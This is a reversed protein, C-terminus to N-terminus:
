DGLRVALGQTARLGIPSSPDLVAAQAYVTAGRWALVPPIPLTISSRGILNPVAFYSQVSGLVYLACGGGIPVSGGTDGIVFVVPLRPSDLLELGFSAEPVRPRALTALEPVTAGCGAGVQTVTAPTTTWEATTTGNNRVLRQRVPDFACPTAQDNVAITNLLSWTRARYRWLETSGSPGVGNNGILVLDSSSSDQHLEPSFLALPRVPTVVQQWDTGDWEWTDGLQDSSTPGTRGGFLVLRNRSPDFELAASARPPPVNASPLSTWALGNWQWLDNRLSTPQSIPGAAGGFLFAHGRISDFAFTADTRPSPATGTGADLMTWAFGDFGWLDNRLVGSANGGFLLVRGFAVDDCAAAFSRASPRVTPTALRWSTGNWVWTQDDAAQARIGGFLVLEGRVAHSAFVHGFRSDPRLDGNAQTMTAGDWELTDTRVPGYQTVGGFSRFDTGGFIMTRGALPDFAVTADVRAPANPVPIAIWSSGDWEHVFGENGVGGFLVTRGRFGDNAMAENGHGTPGNTSRLTWDVGDWEWTRVPVSAIGTHTIMTTVNRAFDYTMVPTNPGPVTSPTRQIWQTGDHEWTDSLQGVFLQQGGYLVVRERVLDYTCAADLRVPPQPGNSHETWRVGDWTWTDNRMASTSDQGGFMLVHQRAFDYVMVGRRRGSPQPGANDRPLFRGNAVEWTTGDAGFVVLRQRGWDYTAMRGFSTPGDIPVWQQASVGSGCLLALWVLPM